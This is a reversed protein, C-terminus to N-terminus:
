AAPKEMLSVHGVVVRWGEQFKVWTKTQRGIRGPATPREYL